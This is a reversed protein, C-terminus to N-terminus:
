RAALHTPERLRFECLFPQLVAPARWDRALDGALLKPARDVGRPRGTRPGALEM